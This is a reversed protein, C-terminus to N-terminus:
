VGENKRHVINDDLTSVVYRSVVCGLVALGSMLWFAGVAFGRDLGVGYVVMILIPFVTRALNGVTVGVANIRARVGAHPVSDNILLVLPPMALAQATMFLVMIVAAYAISVAPSTASMLLNSLPAFFYIPPFILLARRWIRITGFRRILRPFALGQLLALLVTASTMFSGIQPASWGLGGTILFPSARVGHGGDFNTGSKVQVMADVPNSLFVAFGLGFATVHGTLIAHTIMVAIVKATWLTRWQPMRSTTTQTEPGDERTALPIAEEQPVKAYAGHKSTASTSVRGKLWRWFSQQLLAQSNEGERQFPLTEEVYILVLVTSVAYWAAIILNPLAYPYRSLLGLGAINSGFGGLVPGLIMGVGSVLLPLLLARSRDSNVCYARSVKV